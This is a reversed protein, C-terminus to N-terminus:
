RVLRRLVDDTIDLSRRHYLIAKRNIKDRLGQTSRTKTPVENVRLVIDIQKAKAYAAVTALILEYIEETERRIDAKIEEQAWALNANALELRQALQRVKERYIPDDKRWGAKELETKERKISEYRENLAKERPQYKAKIKDEVKAVKGYEMVLKRINVVAIKPGGPDGPGAQAAAGSWIAALLTSTLALTVLVANRARM